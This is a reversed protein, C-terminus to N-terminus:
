ASSNKPSLKTQTSYAVGAPTLVLTRSRMPNFTVLGKLTLQVLHDKVANTGAIRLMKCLERITPPYGTDSSMERIARLVEVQRPTVAYDNRYEAAVRPDARGCAALARRRDKVKNV